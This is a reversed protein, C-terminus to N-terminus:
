PPGGAGRRARRRVLRPRGAGHRAAGRSRRAGPVGGPGPALGAEPLRLWRGEARHGAARRRRAHHAGRQGGLGATRWRHAPGGDSPPGPTIRTPGVREGRAVQARWALHQPVGWMNRITTVGAAVFLTLDDDYWTHVHMDALGPMLWKGAGDIVTVGRPLQVSA